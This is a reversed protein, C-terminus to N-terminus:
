SVLLLCIRDIAMKEDEQDWLLCSHLCQRSASWVKLEYFFYVQNKLVQDGFYFVHTGCMCTCMSAM